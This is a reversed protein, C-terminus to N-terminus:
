PTEISLPSGIGSSRSSILGAASRVAASCARYSPLVGSRHREAGDGRGVTPRERYSFTAIGTADRHERQVARGARAEEVPRVHAIGFLAADPKEGVVPRAVAARGPVGAADDGVAGGVDGRDAVREPDLPEADPTDRATARM